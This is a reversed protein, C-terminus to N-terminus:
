SRQLQPRCDRTGNPRLTPPYHPHNVPQGLSVARCRNPRLSSPKAFTFFEVEAAQLVLFEERQGFCFFILTDSNEGHKKQWCRGADINQKRALLTELDVSKREESNGMSTKRM